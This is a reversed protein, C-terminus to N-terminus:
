FSQYDTVSEVQEVMVQTRETDMPFMTIEVAIDMLQRALVSIWSTFAAM